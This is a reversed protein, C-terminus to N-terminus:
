YYRKTRGRTKEPKGGYDTTLRWQMKAAILQKKQKHKNKYKKPKGNNRSIFKKWAKAIKEILGSM